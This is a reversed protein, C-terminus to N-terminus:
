SNANYDEIFEDIKEINIRVEEKIKSIKEDRNESRLKYANLSSILEEILLDTEKISKKLESIKELIEM